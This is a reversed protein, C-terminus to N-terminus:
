KRLTLPVFPQLFRVIVFLVIVMFRPVAPTVVPIMDEFLSANDVVVDAVPIKTVVIPPRLSFLVKLLLVILSQWTPM